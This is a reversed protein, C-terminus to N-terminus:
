ELKLMKETIRVGPAEFRCFYLGGSANIGSNDRGDWTVQHRGAPAVGSFLTRVLKGGNSYIRLRLM